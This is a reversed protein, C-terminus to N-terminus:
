YEGRAGEHQAIQARDQHHAVAGQLAAAASAASASTGAARMLMWLLSSQRAFALSDAFDDVIILISFLRKDGRKKQTGVIRRQTETVGALEGPVYSDFCFKEREKTWALEERVFQKVPTWAPDM